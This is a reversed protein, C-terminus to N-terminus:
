IILVESPKCYFPKKYNNSDYKIITTEYLHNGNEPSPISLDTVYCVTPMSLIGILPLMYVRHNGSDLRITNKFPNISLVPPNLIGNTKIDNLLTYIEYPSIYTPPFAAFQTLFKISLNETEM